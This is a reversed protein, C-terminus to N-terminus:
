CRTQYEMEASWLKVAEPLTLPFILGLIKGIGAGYRYPSVSLKVRQNAKLGMTERFDV